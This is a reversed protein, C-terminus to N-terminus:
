RSERETSSLLHRKLFSITVGGLGLFWVWISMFLKKVFNYAYLFFFSFGLIYNNGIALTLYSFMMSALSTSGSMQLFM